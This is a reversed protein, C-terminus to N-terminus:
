KESNVIFIKSEKLEDESYLNFFYVGNSITNVKITTLLQNINSKLIVNGLMDTIIYKIRNKTVDELKLNLFLENTVPNPYIEFITTKEEENFEFVSVTDPIEIVSVDDIYYYAIYWTGWGTSQFYVDSTDYFNGITIYKGGGGATYTGSILVWSSTDAVFSGSDNEIQPQYYLTNITSQIPQFNSIFAGIRDSKFESSDALSVYFEIQYKKGAVLTDSFEGTVYEKQNGIDFVMGIGVYASGSKAQQYGIVNKPVDAWYWVTEEDYCSNFYDPTSNTPNIWYQARNVQDLADPCLVTDEFSPNLVLNQGSCSIISSTYFFIFLLVRM